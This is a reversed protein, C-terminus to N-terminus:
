LIELSFCLRHQQLLIACPYMSVGCDCAESEQSQAIFPSHAAIHLFKDGDLPPNASHM